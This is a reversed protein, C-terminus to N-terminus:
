NRRNVILSPSKPKIIKSKKARKAKLKILDAAHDPYKLLAVHLMAEFLEITAILQVTMADTVALLDVYFTQKLLLELQMEFDNQMDLLSEESM